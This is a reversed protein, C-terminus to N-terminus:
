IKLKPNRLCLICNYFSNNDIFTIGECNGGHASCKNECENINAEKTKNM